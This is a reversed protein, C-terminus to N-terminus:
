SSVLYKMNSTWKSFHKYKCFFTLHQMILKLFTRRQRKKMEFSQEAQKQRAVRDIAQKSQSTIPSKLDTSKFSSFMMKFHLERLLFFLSTKHWLVKADGDSQMECM